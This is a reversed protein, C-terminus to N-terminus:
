DSTLREIEERLRAMVRSKALYVAAVTMHLTQSVEKASKGDVATLRFAEWTTEELRARVLTAAHQFLHQEYERDWASIEEPGAEPQEELMDRVSSDGSGQPHRGRSELFNSLKNGLSILYHSCAM